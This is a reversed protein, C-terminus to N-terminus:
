RPANPHPQNRIWLHGWERLQTRLGKRGAFWDEHHFNGFNGAGTEKRDLDGAAINLGFRRSGHQAPNYFVAPHIELCPDFSVAWEIVYGGGPKPRAACEM